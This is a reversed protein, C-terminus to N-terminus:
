SLNNLMQIFAEPPSFSLKNNEIDYPLPIFKRDSFWFIEKTLSGPTSDYIRQVVACLKNVIGVVKLDNIPYILAMSRSPVAVLAGGCGVLGNYKEIDFLVNPVFFHPEEFSYIMEKAPSFEIAEANSVYNRRVNDIGIEFLEDLSRGWPEIQQPKINIVTQPLDFVLVTSLTGAFERYTFYEKGVASMYTSDYLRIALYQEIQGFDKEIKEFEKQFKYGEIISNFHTAVIEPYTGTKNQHCIRALNDLGFTGFGATSEEPIITGDQIEYTLNLTKRFYDDIAAIFAAYEKEKFFSAWEPISSKKRSFLGMEVVEM